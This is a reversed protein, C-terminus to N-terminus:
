TMSITLGCTRGEVAARLVSMFEKPIEITGGSTSFEPVIQGVM